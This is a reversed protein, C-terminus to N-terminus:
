RPGGEEWLARILSLKRDVTRRTIKLEAAIEASSWDELRLRAIVVGTSDNPGRHQHKGAGRQQHAVAPLTLSM